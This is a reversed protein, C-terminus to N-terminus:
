LRSLQQKLSEMQAPTLRAEKAIAGKDVYELLPRELRKVIIEAAGEDLEGSGLEKRLYTKTWTKEPHNNLLFVNPAPLSQAVRASNVKWLRDKHLYTM